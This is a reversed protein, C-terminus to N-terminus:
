DVKDHIYIVKGLKVNIYAYSFLSIVCTYLHNTFHKKQILYICRIIDRQKSQNM